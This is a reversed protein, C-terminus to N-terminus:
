FTWIFCRSDPLYKKKFVINFREADRNEKREKQRLIYIHTQTYMANACIHPHVWGHMDVCLWIYYRPHRARNGEAENDKPLTEQQVPDYVNQRLQNAPKDARPLICNGYQATKVHCSCM